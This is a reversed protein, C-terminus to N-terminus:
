TSASRTIWANMRRLINGLINGMPNWTGCSESDRCGGGEEKFSSSDEKYAEQVWDTRSRWAELEPPLDKDAFGMFYEKVLKVGIPSAKFDYAKRYTADAVSFGDWHCLFRIDGNRQREHGIIREIELNIDDEPLVIRPKRRQRNPFLELHGDVYKKIKTIHFTPHRHSDSIDLTYSSTSKDVATVKYPGVWPPCLKQRGKPLHTLQSENSVLVMDGINIDPDEKQDKNVYYSQETKAAIIADQAALQSLMRNEVFDM